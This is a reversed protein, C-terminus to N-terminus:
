DFDQSVVSFGEQDNEYYFKRQEEGSYKQVKGKLIEHGL